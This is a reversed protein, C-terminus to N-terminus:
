ACWDDVSVVAKGQMDGQWAKFATDLGPGSPNGLAQDNAQIDM